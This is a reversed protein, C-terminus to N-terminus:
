NNAFTAPNQLLFTMAHKKESKTGNSRSCLTNEHFKEEREKCKELYYYENLIYDAPNINGIDYM